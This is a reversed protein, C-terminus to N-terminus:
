SKKKIKFNIDKLEIYILNLKQHFNKGYIEDLTEIPSKGELSKRPYSNIMSFYYDLDGQALDSLSKGKSMIYRFFEHNRECAGKDGSRYPRTFFVNSWKEGTEDDIELNYLEDFEPGNDALMVKFMKFYAEEGILSRINSVKEKVEKATFNEILIGLQLKSTVDYITLISKKDGKKGHVTDLQVVNDGPHDKIYKLYDEYTRSAKMLPNRTTIPAYKYTKTAYPRAMANILDVRKASLYGDNIWNRVTRASCPFESPYKEYIAEISIGAKILPSIFGDFKELKKKEIKPIHKSEKENTRIVGLAYEPDFIHKEKKCINIKECGNCVYPWKLLTPCLYKKYNPCDIPCSDFGEKRICDKLYLCLRHKSNQHFPSGKIVNVYNHLTRFITTRNKGILTCTKKIPYHYYICKYLLLFDAYLSHKFGSTKKMRGEKRHLM